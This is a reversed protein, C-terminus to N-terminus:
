FKFVGGLSWLNAKGKPMKAAGGDGLDYHEYGLRIGIASTANYQGGLGYTVASRKADPPPTAGSVKSTAQAVGLKGYISFEQNIPYSGVASVGWVSSKIEDVPVRNDKAKGLNVYEAEVALNPNITYGGLLGMATPSSETLTVTDVSTKAKGVKIGAYYDGAFVPAAVFTSLLVAIAIKKM